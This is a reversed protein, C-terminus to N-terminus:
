QEGLNLNLDPWLNAFARAATHFGFSMACLVKGEADRVQIDGDITKPVGIVQLGDQFQWQGPRGARFAVCGLCLGPFLTAQSVRTPVPFPALTREGSHATGARTKIPHRRLEGDHNM